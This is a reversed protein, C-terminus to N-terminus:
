LGLTAMATSFLREDCASAKELESRVGREPEGAALAGFHEQKLHLHMDALTFDEGPRNAMAIMYAWVYRCGMHFFTDTPGGPEGIRLTGLLLDVSRKAHVMDSGGSVGGALRTDLIWQRIAERPDALPDREKANVQRAMETAQVRSREIATIAAVVRNSFAEWSVDRGTLRDIAQLTWLKDPNEFLDGGVKQSLETWM